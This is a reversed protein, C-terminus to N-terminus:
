ILCRFHFSLAFVPKPWMGVGFMKPVCRGGGEESTPSWWLEPGASHLVQLNVETADVYFHNKKILLLM